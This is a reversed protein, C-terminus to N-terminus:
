SEFQESLKRVAAARMVGPSPRVGTWWHFQEQAQAVLMDLGGITKCGAAEADRLLRTEQPNYILDYVLGGTLIGPPAPSADTRPYMGIPTCNILLDWSGAHPPWPGVKGSVIMAVEDAKAQSRAHVTIRAGSSALAIAVARASGGAGLISVRTGQLLVAREHLPLLFGSADTNGGVWRGNGVRVTNIAGIRRAVADAEDVRDYLDVKFPITISAGKLNIAKAFAVFDDADAADFPLYVADIQAAAFAANHMAPSVSHGVPSGALGYVDTASSLSRFHFESGLMSPTVQGVDTLMGAYTWASNFRHALVRSALGREGMAIGVFTNRGGLAAGIEMLPICDSLRNAKAAIKVVEAGTARMAIAREHLDPPVREFDHSSLVVRRGGTGALLDRFNARWEVDVYEAGQVLADSLIRLREEESGSFRGGEWKPRCTVLVPKDRGDLAGAVDPDAVSDLRLEILDADRVADRRRRLEAMSPATITVCVQPKM